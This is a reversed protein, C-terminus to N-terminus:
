CAINKTIKITQRWVSLHFKSRLSWSPISKDKPNQKEKKQKELILNFVHWCM